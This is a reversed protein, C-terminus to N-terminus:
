CFSAFLQNTEGPLSVDKVEHDKTSYKTHFTQGPATCSDILDSVYSYMRGALPRIFCSNPLKVSVMQWAYAPHPPSPIAFCADLCCAAECLLHGSDSLLTVHAKSDLSIEQSNMQNLVSFGCQNRLEKQTTGLLCSCYLPPKEM